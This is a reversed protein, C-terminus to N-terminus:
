LDQRRYAERSGKTSYSPRLYSTNATYPTKTYMTAARDSNVSHPNSYIRPNYNSGSGGSSYYSRGSGYLPGYSSRPFTTPYTTVTTTPTKGTVIDEAEQNYKSGNEEKANQVDDSLPRRAYVWSRDGITLNEDFSAYEGSIQQNFLVSNLQDGAHRGWQIENQGIGNRIAELDTLNEDFWEPVTEGNFGRNVLNDSFDVTTFPLLSTPHNGKEVYVPIINPDFIDLWPGYPVPMHTDAYVYRIEYDTLIQEYGDDWEPIEDNKLFNYIIDNVRERENYYNNKAIFRLDSNYLEGSELQAAFDNRLDSLYDYLYNITAMRADHQLVYGNSKAVNVDGGFSEIEALVRCAMNDNFEEQTMGEPITSMDHLAAWTRTKPDSQTKPPMEDWFYGTKTPDNRNLFNGLMAYAWNGIAYRRFLYENYNDVKKTIGNATHWEDSRDYVRGPNPTRASDGRILASKGISEYLPAFPTLKNGVRLITGLTFSKMDSEPQYNPDESMAKFEALSDRWDTIVHAFDLLVNGDLQKHVSDMMVAGALNADNTRTYVAIYYAVPFALLTLDNLWWAVRIEEGGIRWRESMYKDWDEDPPEFGLALFTFALIAGVILNHGLTVADFILNMRLGEYFGTINGGIVLDGITEDGTRQKLRSALYTFTRTGPLISYVFNLGYTPFTDIFLTILANTVAHDRLFRDVHYSIPNVQAINNARMMNYANIGADTKLMSTVFMAMNGNTALMMDEIEDATYATSGTTTSEGSVLREFGTLESEDTSRVRQANAEAQNSILLSMFWNMTDSEKFALDGVLVKRSLEELIKLGEKAKPLGPDKFYKEKLFSQVNEYTCPLNTQGFLRAAGPGGAAWLMKMADMAKVMSESRAYEAGTESMVFDSGDKRRIGMFKLAAYTRLNGAGHEAVSAFALIPRSAVSNARALTTIFNATAEINTEKRGIGPLDVERRNWIPGKTYTEGKIHKREKEYAALRKNEFELCEDVNWRGNMATAYDALLDQYEEFSNHQVTDIGWQGVDMNDIRAAARAVDELVVLQAMNSDTLNARMTPLTHSLWEQGCAEVLESASMKLNSNPGTIAVAVVKPLVGCPFVDTGALQYRGHSTRFPAAMPHGHEICSRLILHVIDVFEDESLSWPGSENFMKGNRDVSLSAYLRVLRFITRQGDINYDLGLFDMLDLMADEIAESWRLVKEGTEPDTALHEGRIHFFGIQLDKVFSDILKDQKRTDKKSKAKAETNDFTRYNEKMLPAPTDQFAEADPRNEQDFVEVDVDPFQKQWAIRAEELLDNNIRAEKNRQRWGSYINENVLQRRQDEDLQSWPLDRFEDLRNRRPKSQQRKNPNNNSKNKNSTKAEPQAVTEDKNTSPSGPTVSGGKGIVKRGQQKPVSRAKALAQAQTFYSQQKSSLKSVDDISLDTLDVGSEKDFIQGDSTVGYPNSDEIKIANPKSSASSGIVPTEMKAAQKTQQKPRNRQANQEDTAINKDKLRRAALQRAAESAAALSAAASSADSYPDSNGDQSIQESAAPNAGSQAVGEFGPVTGAASTDAGSGSGINGIQSGIQENASEQIPM